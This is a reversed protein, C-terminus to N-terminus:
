CGNSLGDSGSSFGFSLDLMNGAPLLGMTGDVKGLPLLNISSPSDEDRDSSSGSAINECCRVYPSDIVFRGRRFTITGTLGFSLVYVNM